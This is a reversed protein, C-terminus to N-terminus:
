EPYEEKRFAIHDQYITKKNTFFTWTGKYPRGKPSIFDSGRFLVSEGDNPIPPLLLCSYEWIFYREGACRMLSEARVLAPAALISAAGM